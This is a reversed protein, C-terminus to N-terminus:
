NAKAFPDPIDNDVVNTNVAPPQAPTSLGQLENFQSQLRALQEQVSEGTEIPAPTGDPNMPHHVVINAYEAETLVKIYDGYNTYVLVLFEVWPIKTTSQPNSIDKGMFWSPVCQHNMSVIEVKAGKRCRDHEIPPTLVGNDDMFNFMKFRYKIPMGNKRASIEAADKQLQKDNFAPYVTGESIAIPRGEPGTLYTLAANCKPCNSREHSSYMGKCAPCTRDFLHNDHGLNGVIKFAYRVEKKEM